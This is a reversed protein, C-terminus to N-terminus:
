AALARRLARANVCLRTASKPKSSRQRARIARAPTSRGAVIEFGVLDKSRCLGLIDQSNASVLFNVIVAM